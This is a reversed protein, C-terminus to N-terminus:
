SNHESEQNTYPIDFLLLYLHLPFPLFTLYLANTEPNLSWLQLSGTKTQHITETQENESSDDYETTDPDSNSKTESSLLYTGIVFNNPSGPWFQLCSPPQDLYTTTKSTPHQPSM